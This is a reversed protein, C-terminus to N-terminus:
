DPDPLVIKAMDAATVPAVGQKSMWLSDSGGGDGSAPSISRSGLYQGAQQRGSAALQLNMRQMEELLALSISQQAAAQERSTKAGQMQELLKRNRESAQSAAYSNFVSTAHLELAGVEREIRGRSQIARAMVPDKAAWASLFEYSFSRTATTSSYHGLTPIIDWGPFRPKADAWAGAQGWAKQLRDTAKSLKGVETYLSGGAKLASGAQNLADKAEQSVVGDVQDLLGYESAAGGLAMLGAIPGGEGFANVIRTVITVVQTIEAVTKSAEVVTKVAQGFNEPDFVVHGVGGFLALAPRPSIMGMPIMAMLGLWVIAVAGVLRRRFNSMRGPEATPQPAGFDAYCYGRPRGKREGRMNV